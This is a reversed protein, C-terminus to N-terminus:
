FILIVSVRHIYELNFSAVTCSLSNLMHNLTTDKGFFGYGYHIYQSLKIM